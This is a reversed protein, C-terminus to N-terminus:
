RPVASEQPPLVRRNKTGPPPRSAELRPKGQDNARFTCIRRGHGNCGAGALPNAEAGRRPGGRRKQRAGRRPGARPTVCERRLTHGPLPPDAVADVELVDRRSWLSHMQHRERVVENLAELGVDVAVLVLELGPQPEPLMPEPPRVEPALLGPREAHLPEQGPGVVREEAGKRLPGPHVRGELPPPPLDLIEERERRRPPLTDGGLELVGQVVHGPIEAEAPEHRM